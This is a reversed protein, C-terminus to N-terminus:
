TTNINLTFICNTLLTVVYHSTLHLLAPNCHKKMSRASDDQLTIKNTLM